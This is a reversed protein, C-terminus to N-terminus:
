TICILFWLHVSFAFGQNEGNVTFFVKRDKTLGCGIVDSVEMDQSYEKGYKEEGSLLCDKSQYFKSGVCSYWYRSSKIETPKDLDEMLKSTKLGVKVNGMSLLHDYDENGKMVKTEFYAIKSDTPRCKNEAQIIGGPKAGDKLQVTLPDELIKINKHKHIISLEDNRSYCRLDFLFPSTGFNADVEWGYGTFYVSPFLGKQELDEKEVNFGSLSGLNQGNYTFFLRYVSTGSTTKRKEIGCGIVDNEGVQPGFSMWRNISVKGENSYWYSGPVGFTECFSPNESGATFGVHMYGEEGQSILKLEFYIYDRTM